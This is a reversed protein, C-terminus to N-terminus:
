LLNPEGKQIYSQTTDKIIRNIICNFFSTDHIFTARYIYIGSNAFATVPSLSLQHPGCIGWLQLNEFSNHESGDDCWSIIEQARRINITKSHVATIFIYVVYMNYFICSARTRRLEKWIYLLLTSKFTKFYIVIQKVLRNNWQTYCM